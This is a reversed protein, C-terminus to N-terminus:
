PRAPPTRTRPAYKVQRCSWSLRWCSVGVGQLGGCFLEVGGAGLQGDSLFALKGLAEAASDLM